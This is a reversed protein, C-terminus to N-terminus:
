KEERTTNEAYRGTGHVPTLLGSAELQAVVLNRQTWHSLTNDEAM